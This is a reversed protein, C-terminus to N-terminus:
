IQVTKRENLYVLCFSFIIYIMKSNNELSQM